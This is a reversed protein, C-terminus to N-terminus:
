LKMYSEMAKEIDLDGNEIGDLLSNIDNEIDKENIKAEIDKNDNSYGSIFQALKSITTYSFLDAVSVKDPYYKEILTHVKTILISDGGIDFFNDYIDFEEFGLVEKWIAAIRLETESFDEGKKGKLKVEEAAVSAKMNSKFVHKRSKNEIYSKLEDSIKIDGDLITKGNISGGINLEGIIVNKFKSGIIKNIAEMAKATPLAKFINDFNVGYNVAMGTEKWAPWNITLTKRGQINRYESYACLFTNAATYDGQGPVGMLTNNSSFMVFFDLNDEKTLEDLLYTGKIKPNLVNDFTSEDKIIM